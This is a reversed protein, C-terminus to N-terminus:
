AGGILGESVGQFPEYSLACVSQFSGSLGTQFPDVDIRGVEFRDRLAKWRLLGLRAGKRSGARSVQMRQGVSSSGCPKM